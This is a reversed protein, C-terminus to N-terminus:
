AAGAIPLGLSRGIKALASRRNFISVRALRAQDDAMIAAVDLLFMTPDHHLHKVIAAITENREQGRPEAGNIRPPLPTLSRSRPLPPLFAKSGAVAAIGSRDADPNRTYFIPAGATQLPANGSRPQSPTITKVFEDLTVGKSKAGDRLIELPPRRRRRSKGDKGVNHNLQSIEGTAELKSRITSVTTHHVKALEATQRDSREPREHLLKAILEKKQATTLHRRHINASIVFEYSDVDGFFMIPLTALEGDADFAGVGALECADLRNRGDLLMMDAARYRRDPSYIEATWLMIPMKMGHKKIDEGLARLEDDPLLPFLECAPHIKIVDRWRRRGPTDGALPKQDINTSAM